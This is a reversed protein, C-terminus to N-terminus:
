KKTKYIYILHIGNSKQFIYIYISYNINIKYNYLIYNIHM